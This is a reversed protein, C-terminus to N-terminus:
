MFNIKWHCCWKYSTDGSYLPFNNYKENIESYVHLAIIKIDSKPEVQQHFYLWFKKLPCKYRLNNFIVSIKAMINKTNTNNWIMLFTSANTKSCINYALCKDSSEVFIHMKHQKSHFNGAVWSLSASINKTVHTILNIAGHQHIMARYKNSYDVICIEWFKGGWMSFIQVVWTPIGAISKQTLLKWQNIGM